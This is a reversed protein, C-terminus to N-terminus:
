MAAACNVLQNTVFLFYDLWPRTHKLFKLPDDKQKQEEKSPWCCRPLRWQHKKSTAFLVLIFCVVAFSGLLLNWFPGTSDSDPPAHARAADSSMCIAAGQMPVPVNMGFFGAIVNMPLAATTFRSMWNIQATLKEQSKSNHSALLAEFNSRITHIQEQVCHLRQFINKYSKSIKELESYSISRLLQPTWKKGPTTDIEQKKRDLLFEVTNMKEQFFQVLDVM